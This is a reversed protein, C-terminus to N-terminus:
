NHTEDKLEGEKINLILGVKEAHEPSVLVGLV